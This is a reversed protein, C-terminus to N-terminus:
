GDCCNLSVVWNGIVLKLIVLNVKECMKLLLFDRVVM